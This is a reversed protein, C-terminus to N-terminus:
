TPSGTRRERRQRTARTAPKAKNREYAQQENKQPVGGGQIAQCTVVAAWCRLRSNVARCYRATTSHHSSIRSRPTFMILSKLVELDLRSCGAKATACSRLRHKRPFYGAHKASSPAVISM